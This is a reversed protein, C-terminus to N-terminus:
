RGRGSPRVRITAALEASMTLTKGEVDLVVAEGLPERSDIEVRVGPLLNRETLYRVVEASEEELRVVTLRKKIPAEALSVTADDADVDLPHGHPCVDPEGLKRAIRGELQPSVAHELRCAEGHADELPVDLVDTLLRETLRHRRLLENALEDGAPTLAINHYRRYAILGMDALKRLMGTVSAPKVGLRRALGSTSVGGPVQSLRHIAQMYEEVSDSLLDTDTM